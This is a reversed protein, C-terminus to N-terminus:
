AGFAPMLDHQLIDPALLVFLQLRFLSLSISYIKFFGKLRLAKLQKGYVTQDLDDVGKGAGIVYGIALDGEKKSSVAGAEGNQRNPDTALAILHAAYLAVARDASCGFWARNTECEAMALFDDRNDVDNYQPAIIRLAADASM